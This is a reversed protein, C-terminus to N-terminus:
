PAHRCGNTRIIERSRDFLNQNGCCSGCRRRQELLSRDRTRNLDRHWVHEDVATTLVTKIVLRPRIRQDEETLPSKGLGTFVTVAGSDMLSNNDANGNVGTANSDEALASVVATEGDIAVAWGFSDGSDSSEPTFSSDESWSTGSRTVGGVEGSGGASQRGVLAVDGSIALGNETMGSGSISISEQLAWSGGTRAFINCTTNVNAVLATDGDLAVSYGAFAFWGITDLKLYAEQNWTTGSRKFVYAAGNMPM